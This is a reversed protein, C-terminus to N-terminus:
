TLFYTIGLWYNQKGKVFVTSFAQASSPAPFRALHCADEAEVTCWACHADALVSGPLSLCFELDAHLAAEFKRQYESDAVTSTSMNSEEPLHKEM